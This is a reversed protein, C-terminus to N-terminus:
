HDDSASPGSRIREIAARPRWAVLALRSRDVSGVAPHPATVAVEVSRAPEAPRPAARDPREDTRSREARLAHVSEEEGFHVVGPLLPNSFDIAVCTLLTLTFTWV